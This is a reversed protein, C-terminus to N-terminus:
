GGAREMAVGIVEGHYVMAPGVFGQVSHISQRKKIRIAKSVLVLRDGPRVVGRFRVNDLGGFVLMENEENIAGATVAFYSALQAGAECMLVGPLLPQGPFHGPVWFEDPRVDKYGIILNAERDIMVVADLQEMAFRHRNLRRIAERDAIVRTLDITTPDIHAPPPM